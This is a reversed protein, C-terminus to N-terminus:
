FLTMTAMAVGIVVFVALIVYLWSFVVVKLANAWWRGGYFRRVALFLYGCLALQWVVRSISDVAELRGVASMVTVIVSGFLLLFAQFHTAFVLHEITYRRRWFIKLLLALIPLLLFHVYSLAAFVATNFDDPRERVRAFGAEWQGIEASVSGVESEDAEGIDIKGMGGGFTLVYGAESSVLRIRLPGGGTVAIVAFFVLGAFVYLRFPPVYRVRRGAFWETTLFGPRALLPGLTRWVRADLAFFDGLLERVYGLIPRRPEIAEQGCGPCFTGM